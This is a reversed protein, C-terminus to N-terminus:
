NLTKGEVKQGYEYTVGGITYVVPILLEEGAQVKHINEIKKSNAQILIDTPIKNESAIDPVTDGPKVVYVKSEKIELPAIQDMYYDNMEDALEKDPTLFELVQGEYINANSNICKAGIFREELASLTDGLVVKYKFNFKGEATKEQLEEVILLRAKGEDSKDVIIKKGNEATKFEINNKELEDVVDELAERPIEIESIKSEQHIKYASLGLALIAAAILAKGRISIKQLSFGKKKKNRKIGLSEDYKERVERKVCLIKYAEEIEIKERPIANFHLNTLRERIEDLRADYRINYKEYYNVIEKNEM